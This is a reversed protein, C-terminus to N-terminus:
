DDPTKVHPFSACLKIWLMIGDAVFGVDTSGGGWIVARM